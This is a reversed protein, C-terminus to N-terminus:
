TPNQDYFPPTPLPMWHPYISLGVSRDNVVWAGSSPELYGVAHKFVPGTLLVPEFPTPPIQKVSLWGPTTIKLGALFEHRLHQFDYDSM